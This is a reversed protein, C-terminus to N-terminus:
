YGGINKNAGSEVLSSQEDQTLLNPKIKNILNILEIRDMKENDILHMSIADLIDRNQVLLKKGRSYQDDLIRDIEKDIKNQLSKGIQNQQNDQQEGTGVTVNRPGVKESMGLQEVMM